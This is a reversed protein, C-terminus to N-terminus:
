FKSPLGTAAGSMQAATIAVYDELFEEKVM